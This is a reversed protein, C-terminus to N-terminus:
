QPQTTKLYIISGVKIKNKISDTATLPAYFFLTNTVKKLSDITKGQVIIMEYQKANEQKRLTNENSLTIIRTNAAAMQKELSDLRINQKKDYITQGFSWTGSLLLITIFLIKM